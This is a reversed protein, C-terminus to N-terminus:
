AVPRAFCRLLLQQHASMSLFINFRQLQLQFLSGSLSRFFPTLNRPKISSVHSGLGLGKEGEEEEDTHAKREIGLSPREM